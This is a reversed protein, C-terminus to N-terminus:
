LNFWIVDSYGSLITKRDKMYLEYDNESLEFIYDLGYVGSNLITGINVGSEICTCDYVKCGDQLGTDGDVKNDPIPNLGKVLNCIGGNFFRKDIITHVYSINDYGIIGSGEMLHCNDVGNAVTLKCKYCVYGLNNLDTRINFGRGRSKIMKLECEEFLCASNGGWVLDSDGEIYCQYFWNFGGGPSLANQNSYFNCHIFAVANDSNNRLCIVECQDKEPYTNKFSIDEFRVKDANGSIILNSCGGGLCNGDTGVPIDDGYKLDRLYQMECGSKLELNMGNNNDYQLITNGVGNGKITLNSLGRINVIEEYVGSDICIIKKQNLMYANTFYDIAGQLTYFHATSDSHSVRLDSLVSPSERTKFFWSLKSIGSFQPHHIVNSDITVYYTTNYDLVHSHPKIIVSNDTVKIPHYNVILRRDGAGIIDMWTNFKVTGTAPIPTPCESLNIEDVLMNDYLRYIRIYGDKGLTPSQGNFTLILETDVYADEINYPYLEYNFYGVKDNYEGGDEWPTTTNGGQEVDAPASSGAEILFEYVFGKDINRLLEKNNQFKWLYPKGKYEYSVYHLQTFSSPMLIVESMSKDSSVYPLISTESQSNQLLERTRFNYIGQINFGHFAVKEVSVKNGSSDVFKLVVKSLCHKFVLPVSKLDNYSYNEFVEESMMLDFASTGASQDKLNLIYQMDSLSRNYPYYAWFFVEGMKDTLFFPSESTFKATIESYGCSYMVNDSLCEGVTNYMFAGIRDGVTWSIGDSSLRSEYSSIKACFSVKGKFMDSSVDDNTSCSFLFLLGFIFESINRAVM